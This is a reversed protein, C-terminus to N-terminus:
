LQFVFAFEQFVEWLSLEPFPSYPLFSIHPLLSLLSLISPCYFLPFSLRSCLLSLSLPLAVALFTLLVRKKLNQGWSQSRPKLAHPLWISCFIPWTYMQVYLLCVHFVCVCVKWSVRVWAGEENELIVGQHHRKGKLAPGLVCKLLFKLFLPGCLTLWGAWM